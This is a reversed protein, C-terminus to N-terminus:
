AVWRWPTRTPGGEGIVVLDPDMLNAYHGPSNMLNAHLQAVEDRDVNKGIWEIDYVAQLAGGTEPCTFPHELDDLIKGTELSKLGQIASFM